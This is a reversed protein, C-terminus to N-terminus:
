YQNDLTESHLCVFVDYQIKRKSRFPSKCKHTDIPLLNTHDPSCKQRMPIHFTPHRKHCNHDRSSYIISNSFFTAPM